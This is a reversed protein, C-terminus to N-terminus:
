PRVARRRSGDLDLFRVTVSRGGDRTIDITGSGASVSVKANGTASQFRLKGPVTLRWTGSRQSPDAATVVIYGGDKSIHVVSSASASVGAVSGGQWFVIGLAGNRNDRVASISSDNRVISFPESEAYRKMSTADAHPVIAYAAEAGSVWSGHDLWLTLFPAHVAPLGPPGGLTEWSGSQTAVKMEVDAGRPFFYGVGDSVAWVTGPMRRSWGDWAAVTAGNVVLPADVSTLLWQEVVTEVKHTSASRISNALFVISDGLFFWAKKATLTSYLSAYDMASVGGRGDGTGGVFPTAGYWLPGTAATSSQEVTTGPLRTWDLAPWGNREYDGRGELRLSFRGDAARAGLLNEGSTREGGKTRWSTMRVSSFWGARRHITYDSDAYHRHGSPWAAAARLPAVADAHAALEVPLPGSWSELMKKASAVIEGYRRSPVSSMQLLAALGNYGSTSPRVVERGIVSVDFHNRQLAWSIGDAVYDAFSQLSEPPLEMGTGRTIVAYKAVDNAFSGGYGGTYLQPGHQHFSSDYQIGEANRVQRTVSAMADRVEGALSLDRKLIALCLHTYSAWVLNQGVPVPGAVDTYLTTGIHAELTATAAFLIDPRIVDKMLVLTPGLDLPAGITWFWWNGTKPTAPAYFTQVHAIASEIKLLLAPDRHFRQGPTAWARSLITLRRFHDWPSWDGAPVAEYDIDSWSGDPRLYGAASFRAAERELGELGESLRPGTRASEAATMWSVFTQEVTAITQDSVPATVAAAVSATAFRRELMEFLDGGRDRQLGQGDSSGLLLLPLFPLVRLLGLM